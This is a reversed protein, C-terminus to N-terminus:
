VGEDGEAPAVEESVGTLCAAIGDRRGIGEDLILLRRPCVSSTTGGSGTPSAVQVRYHIVIM